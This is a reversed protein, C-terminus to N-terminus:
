LRSAIRAFFVIIVPAVVALLAVHGFAHGLRTMM